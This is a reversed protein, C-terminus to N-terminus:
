HDFYSAENLALLVEFLYFIQPPPASPDVDQFYYELSQLLLSIVNICSLVGLKHVTLLISSQAWQNCVFKLSRFIHM